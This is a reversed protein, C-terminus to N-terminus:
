KKKMIKALEEILPRLKNYKCEGINEKGSETVGYATVNNSCREVVISGAPIMHEETVELYDGLFARENAIRKDIGMLLKAWHDYKNLHYKSADQCEHAYYVLNNKQRSAIEDNIMILLDNLDEISMEKLNM